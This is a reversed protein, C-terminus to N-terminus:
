KNMQNHLIKDSEGRNCDFCLTQLNSIDDSGGKLVPIIHDVELKVGDYRDRGCMQCTYNDRELVLTRKTLTIDRKRIISESIISEYHYGTRSYNPQSYNKVHWIM